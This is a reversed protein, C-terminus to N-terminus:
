QVDGGQILWNDAKLVDVASSKITFYIGINKRFSIMPFAHHWFTNNLYSYSTIFKGQSLSYRAFAKIASHYDRPTQKVLILSYISYKFKADICFIYGLISSQSILAFCKYYTKPNHLYRWELYDLSPKIQFFRSQHSFNEPIKDFPVVQINTSYPLSVVYKSTLQGLIQYNIKQSFKDIKVGDENSFGLYSANPSIVKELMQTLHTVLGRRRYSPHTAQVACSYFVRDKSQPDEIALPTFCVFACVTHNDIALMGLSKNKFHEDFHKWIFSKQNIKKDPFCLNLLHVVRSLYELSYQKYEM